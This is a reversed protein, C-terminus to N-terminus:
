RINNVLKPLQSLRSIEKDPKIKKKVRLNEPRRARRSIWVAYIGVEQAGLIDAGLTDGVMLSEGPTSSMVSLAKDYIRHDPKRIGEEASIVIADFYQRLNANDVLNNLDETNSANSIICMRCGSQKLEALTHHTDKEVHWHAETVKYMAAIAAKLVDPSAPPLEFCALARNVFLSAPQEVHDIERAAYHRNIIQEYQRTFAKRNINIGSHILSDALSLYSKRLIRPVNGEFNILTYGLDFFITTIKLRMFL